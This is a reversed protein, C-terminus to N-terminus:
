STTSTHDKVRNVNKKPNLVDANEVYAVNASLECHQGQQTDARDAMNKCTIHKHTKELAKYPLQVSLKKRIM